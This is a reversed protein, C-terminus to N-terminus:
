SQPQRTAQRAVRTAKLPNEELWVPSPPTAVCDRGELKARYLALDANRILDDVDEGPVFEAVGLSCSVSAKGQTTKVALNAIRSRLAEATEVADAEGCGDLFVCLEDGGLRGVITSARGAEGAIVRLAEDGIAHGYLDNVEKFYDIDLLIVSASGGGASSNDCIETARAFFARRNLLGTLSDVNALRILKRQLTLLREASRLRAHLEDKDPPKHLLDDVGVDLAEIATRGGMNSSMLAVYIPRHEGAVLRLEWCLEIGSLPSLEAATIVGDIEQDQKVRELAEASDSFPIIEHAPALIDSLAKQTARSPDVLVIHM